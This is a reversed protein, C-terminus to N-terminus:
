AADDVEKLATLNWLGHDQPTMLMQRGITRGTHVVRTREPM